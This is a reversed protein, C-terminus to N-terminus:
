YGWQVGNSFQFQSHAALGMSLVTSDRKWKYNTFARSYWDAADVEEQNVHTRLRGCNIANWGLFCTNANVWAKRSLRPLASNSFAFSLSIWTFKYIYSHLLQLFLSTKGQLVWENSVPEKESPLIQKYLCKGDWLLISCM